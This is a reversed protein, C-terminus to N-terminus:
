LDAAQIFEFRPNFLTPRVLKRRLKLNYEESFKVANEADILKLAEDGHRFDVSSISTAEVVKEDVSKQDMSRKEELPESAQHM